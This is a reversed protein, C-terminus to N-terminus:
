EGDPSRGQKEYYDEDRKLLPRLWKAVLVLTLAAVFGFAPYFGFWYEFGFRPHKAYFLDALFLLGCLTYLGYVIRDVNRPEDLLYRKEKM